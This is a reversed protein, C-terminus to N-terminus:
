LGSGVWSQVEVGLLLLNPHLYLRLINLRRPRDEVGNSSDLPLIMMIMQGMSGIPLEAECVRKGV